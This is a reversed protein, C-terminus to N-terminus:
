KEGEKDSYEWYEQSKKYYSYNVIYGEELEKELERKEIQEIYNQLANKGIENLPVKTRHLVKKLKESLKYEITFSFRINNNELDGNSM